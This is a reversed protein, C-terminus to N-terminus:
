AVEAIRHRLRPLMHHILVPTVFLGIVTAPGMNGGLLMGITIASANWIFNARSVPWRWRKEAALSLATVGDPGLAAAAALSIGFAFMLLGTAFAVIHWALTLDLPTVSAGLSIAPGVLVLAPLTGMGLPIRGWSWGIIFLLVTMIMQSLWLPVSLVHHIGDLLVAFGFSGFGASISIGSGLGLLVPGSLGALMRAPSAQWVILDRISFGLTQIDDTQPKHFVTSHHNDFADHDKEISHTNMMFESAFLDNVALRPVTSDANLQRKTYSYASAACHDVM